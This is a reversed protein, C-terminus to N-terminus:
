ASRIQISRKPRPWSRRTTFIWTQHIYVALIVCRPNKLYDILLSQIDDSLTASEDKGRSRVIGPLDILALDECHPGKMEVSVIDRAVEKNATRIIHDQADAIFKTLDNWNAEDVIKPEFEIITGITPKEKWVVKVLVTKRDARRMQLMIPCQTTLNDSSPLEVTSMMSLLSLMGSSTDGMVTIMPLDVYEAVSSQALKDM